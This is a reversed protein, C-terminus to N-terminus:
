FWAQGRGATWGESAAESSQFGPCGSTKGGSGCGMNSSSRMDPERRSSSASHMRKSGPSSAGRRDKRFCMHELLVALRLQGCRRISAPSYSM